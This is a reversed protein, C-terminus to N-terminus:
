QGPQATSQTVVALIVPVTYATGLRYSGNAQKEEKSYENKSAGGGIRFPGLRIGGSGKIQKRMEELKYDDLNAEFVIRRAVILGSVLRPIYGGPGLIPQGPPVSPSGKKLRLQGSDIRKLLDLDFWNGPKVNIYSLNCFRLSVRESDKAVVKSYNDGDASGGISFFSGGYSGNANWAFSRVKESSVAKNFAIEEWQNPADDECDTGVQLAAAWDGDYAWPIGDASAAVMSRALEILPSTLYQAVPAFRLVETNATQLRQFPEFVQGARRTYYEDMVRSNVVEEAEIMRKKYKEWGEDLKDWEDLFNKSAKTFATVAKNYAAKQQPDLEPPAEIDTVVSLYRQHLRLEQMAPDISFVEAPVVGAIEALQMRALRTQDAGWTMPVPSQLVHVVKNEQGGGIRKELRDWIANWAKQDLSQGSAPWPAALLVALILGRRLRM